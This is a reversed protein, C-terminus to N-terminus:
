IDAPLPITIQNIGLVALLTFWIFMVPGFAGRIVETGFRQFIFLMIIIFLVVGVV